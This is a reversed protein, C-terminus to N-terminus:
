AALYKTLLGFMCKLMNLKNVLGWGIYCTVLANHGRLFKFKAKGM